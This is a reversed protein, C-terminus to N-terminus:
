INISCNGMGLVERGEEDYKYFKVKARKLVIKMMNKM